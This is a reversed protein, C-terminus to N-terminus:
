KSGVPSTLILGIACNRCIWNKKDDNVTIYLDPIVHDLKILQKGCYFCRPHKLWEDFFKPYEPCIDNDCRFLKVQNHHLHSIDTLRIGCQPCEIHQM